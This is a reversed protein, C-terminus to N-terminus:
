LSVKILKMFTKNFGSTKFVKLYVDIIKDYLYEDPVEEMDRPIDIFEYLWGERENQDLYFKLDKLADKLKETKGNLCENYAIIDKIKFAFIIPLIISYIIITEKKNFYMFGNKESEIYDKATNYLIKYRNCDRLTFQYKDIMSYFVDHPLYTTKRFDLYKKCYEISRLNDVTIVYDYFKNLYSYSNFNMGFQNNIINKLENNNAVVIITVNNLNYFHKITELMKTAYVPNCRDLEDIVLIMRKDGLIKDILEKFLVKKEENTNIEKALDDFTKIKDINDSNLDVNLLKNSIIKTLLNLVEKFFDESNFKSTVKDKFKPYENLINYIISDFPNNHDDNEWANYYFILNNESIKLLDEKVDNFSKFQDTESYKKYNKILYEFQKVLFTKGVGWEGDICITDSENINKILRILSDLYEKNNLKDELLSNHINLDNAEIEYKEM